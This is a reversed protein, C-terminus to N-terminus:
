FSFKFKCFDLISILIEFHSCTARSLPFFTAWTGIEFKMGWGMEIGVVRKENASFFSSLRHRGASTSKKAMNWASYFDWCRCSGPKPIYNKRRRQTNHLIMVSKLSSSELILIINKQRFRSLTTTKSILFWLKWCSFSKKTNNQHVHSSNQLAKRLRQTKKISEWDGVRCEVGM